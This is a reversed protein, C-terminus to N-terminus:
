LLVIFHIKVAELSGFISGTSQFVKKWTDMKTHVHFNPQMQMM